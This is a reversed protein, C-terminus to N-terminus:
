NLLKEIELSVKTFAHKFEAESIPEIGKSFDLYTLCTVDICPTLVLSEDFEYDRVEICAGKGVTMYYKNPDSIRKFYLPLEIEKTVTTNVTIKM